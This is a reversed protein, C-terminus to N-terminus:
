KTLTWTSKTSSRYGKKTAWVVIRTKNTIKKKVKIVFKGKKDVKKTYTKKGIKIHVKTGKKGKGYIIKKNRIKIVKPTNCQKKKSKPLNSISYDPTKLISEETQGENPHLNLGGGGDPQGDPVNPYDDYDYNVYINLDTNFSKNNDIVTITIKKDNRNLPRDPNITYNTIEKEIERINENDYTYTYSGYVKLNTKDFNEGEKCNFYQYNTYIKDLQIETIKENKIVNLYSKVDDSDGSGKIYVYLSNTPHSENYKNVSIWWIYNDISGYKLNGDFEIMENIDTIYEGRLAMLYALTENKASYKADIEEYFENEPHNNNYKEVKIEWMDVAYSEEVSKGEEILKDLEKESDAKKVYVVVNADYAKENYAVTIKVNYIGSKLPTKTDVKYDTIEKTISRKNGNDYTYTYTGYIILGSKNFVEGETYDHKVQEDNKSIKDLTISTINETKITNLYSLLDNRDSSNIFMSDFSSECLKKIKDYVSNESHKENYHEANLIWLYASIESSNIEVKEGEAIIDDIGDMFGDKLITLCALMRNMDYTSISTDECYKKIREYYINNYYKENFSNVKNMWNLNEVSNWDGNLNKGEEILGELEQEEIDSITQNISIDNKTVPEVAYITGISGFTLTTMLGLILIRKLNKM